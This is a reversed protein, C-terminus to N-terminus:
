LLRTGLTNDPEEFLALDVVFDLDELPVFPSSIGLELLDMREAFSWNYADFCSAATGDNECLRTQDSLIKGLVKSGM